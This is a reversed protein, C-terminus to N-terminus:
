NVLEMKKRMFLDPQYENKPDQKFLLKAFVEVNPSYM